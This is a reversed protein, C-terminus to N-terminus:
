YKIRMYAFNMCWILGFEIWVFGSFITEFFGLVANFTM